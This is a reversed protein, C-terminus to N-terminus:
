DDDDDHNGGDFFNLIDHMLNDNTSFLDYGFTTGTNYCTGLTVPLAAGTVLLLLYGLWRRTTM